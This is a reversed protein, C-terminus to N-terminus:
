LTLHMPSNNILIYSRVRKLFLDELTHSFKATFEVGSDRSQDRQEVSVVSSNM